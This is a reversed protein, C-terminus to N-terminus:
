TCRHASGYRGHHDECRVVARLRGAGHDRGGHRGRAFGWGAAQGGTQDVHHHLMVFATGASRPGAWTGIVGSVSLLGRMADSVFREEVLDAISATFLRTLDFATRVDVKRLTRLMAAQGLVDMPRHSGVKPPVSDLLPGVLRGLGALWADWREYADADEKAFAAIQEYRPRSGGAPQSIHGDRRPAFYPGQPYVHYGHEVLRLDRVMDAPLLSVVYSLSTVLFEPGFPRASVAAGGVVPRRELVVVRRGARALYAAAVLGNHGGGIVVVDPSVATM